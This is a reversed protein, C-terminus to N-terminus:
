KRSSPKKFWRIGWFLFLLALVADLLKLPLTIPEGLVDLEMDGKILFFLVLFAIGLILFLISFLRRIV